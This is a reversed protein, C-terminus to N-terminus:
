HSMTMQLITTFGLINTAEQQGILHDKQISSILNQDILFKVEGKGSRPYVPYKGFYNPFHNSLRRTGHRRRHRHHKSSLKHLDL